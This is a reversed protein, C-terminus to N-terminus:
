AAAKSQQVTPLVGKELWYGSKGGQSWTRVPIQVNQNVCKRFAEAQTLPAGPESKIKINEIKIDSNPESSEQHQLQMKCVISIKGTERDKEEVPQGVRMISGVLYLM